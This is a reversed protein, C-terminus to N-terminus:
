NGSTIPLYRYYVELCLCATATTYVRGGYGGWICTADWSGAANGDRRQRSLLQEQLAANWTNWHDDQTQFMALTAYYWYYFNPRGDQPLEELIFSVAERRLNPGPQGDLFYRCALAEATMTRSVREGSRYSALGGHVGSSAGRLFRYMGERTAPQIPIGALEASKLAMVQWGFQSMDGLDGKQYRWGGNTRHQCSLSFAVAREVFPTLRQDGTLALAESLALSAMGHCYMRAFFEAEGSLDGDTRQTRLLFELGHQVNKRYPGELHTHGAGLFALMALATVATDAKAGAGGRDHGLVKDERGAGHLSASWRGDSEQHAALWRLAAEVAAETEPTAGLERAALARGEGVRLRYLDPLEAGDGLRRPIPIAAMAAGISPQGATTFELDQRGSAGPDNGTRNANGGAAGDRNAADSLDDQEGRTAMALDAPLADALRQLSGANDMLEQPLDASASRRTPLMEPAPVDVRALEGRGPLDPQPTEVPATEPQPPTPQEIPAPAVAAVAVIQPTPPAEPSPREPADQPPPVDTPAMDFASPAIVDATRTPEVPPAAEQREPQALDPQMPADAALREWPQAQPAHGSQPEQASASVYTLKMVPEPAPRPVDLIVRTTYAYGGLLFHAYLSLFVCKSLPQAQGWRTRTLVMLSLTLVALGGWLLLALNRHSFGESVINTLWGWDFADM